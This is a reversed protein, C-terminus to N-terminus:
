FLSLNVKVISRLRSDFADCYRRRYPIYDWSSSYARVLRYSVLDISRPLVKGSRLTGALAAFLIASPNNFWGRLGKHLSLDDLDIFGMRPVYKRYYIGSTDPHLKVQRLVECPVKLGATVDEDLPVPLFRVGKMLYRVVSPLPIGHEAGWFNLRNIASYRDHVTKLRKIYVGRVNRGRFYDCGCSERFDGINFSKDINVSFGCISLMRVVLNYAKHNVIIDDGFVAFNGLSRKFPREFPLSLVRYAGYVLSCFLVTQLPFTYGNGMTSLMDLRVVDGNPLTTVASRTRELWNVVQSPFMERVISLSISDSASSLDITGFEGTESGIRAMARNKDPQHTLDIGVVQKLREEIVTGIGKQFLMNLVPETCITRSIESSKPAFSVRSGPVLEYGRNMSRISELDSWIADSSIAQMFLMHLQRDTASMRSTGVKSLFDASYSGINSGNGLSFNKAVSSMTVLFDGSSDDITFFRYLFDKAEGLAITEAENMTTPDLKYQSCRSNNLLFLELAKKDAEETTGNTFKKMFSRRLHQLLFQYESIGPYPYTFGDWGQSTLDCDLLVPLVSADYRM